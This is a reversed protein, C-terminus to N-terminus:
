ETHLHTIGRDKELTFRFHKIMGCNEEEGKETSSMNLRKKSAAPRLEMKRLVKM